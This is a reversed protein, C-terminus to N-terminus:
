IQRLFEELAQINVGHENLDVQLEERIPAPPPASILDRALNDLLVMERVPMNNQRRKADLRDVPIINDSEPSVM